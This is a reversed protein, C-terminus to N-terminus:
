DYHKKSAVIEYKECQDGNLTYVKSCSYKKVPVPLNEEVCVMGSPVYGAPCDYVGVAETTVKSVCKKGVLTSSDPCVYKAKGKVGSAKACQSGVADYGSPCKYKKVASKTDVTSYTCNGNGTSVGQSCSYTLKATEFYHCKHDAYNYSGKSCRSGTFSWSPDIVYECM